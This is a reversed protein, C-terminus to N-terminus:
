KKLLIIYFLTVTLVKKLLHPYSIFREPLHPGDDLFTAQSLKPSFKNRDSLKCSLVKSVM